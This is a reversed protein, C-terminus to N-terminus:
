NWEILRSNLSVFLIHKGQEFFWTEFFSCFRDFFAQLRFFVIDQSLSIEM